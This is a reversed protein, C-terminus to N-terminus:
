FTQVFCYLKSVLYTHTIIKLSLFKSVNVSLHICDWWLISSFSCKPCLLVCYLCFMLCLMVCCSMVGCLMVCCLVVLSIQCCLSLCVILRNVWVCQWHCHIDLALRCMCVSRSIIVSNAVVFRIWVRSLHTITEWIVFVVMSWKVALVYVCSRRAVGSWEM